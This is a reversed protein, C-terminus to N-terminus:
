PVKDPPMEAESFGLVQVFAPLVGGGAALGNTIRFKTGDFQHTDDKAIHNNYSTNKASAKTVIAQQGDNEKGECIGKGTFNSYLGMDDLNVICEPACFQIASEPVGHSLAILRRAKLLGPSARKEDFCYELPVDDINTCVYSCADLIGCLFSLM